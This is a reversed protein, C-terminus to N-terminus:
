SKHSRPYILETNWPLVEREHLIPPSFIKALEMITQKTDPDITPIYVLTLCPGSAAQEKRSNESLIAPDAPKRGYGGIVKCYEPLRGPVNLPSSGKRKCYEQVRCKQCSVQLYQTM